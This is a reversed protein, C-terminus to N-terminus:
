NHQIVSIFVVAGKVGSACQSCCCGSNEDDNPGFNSGFLRRRIFAGVLRDIASSGRWGALTIM